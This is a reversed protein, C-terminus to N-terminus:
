SNIRGYIYGTSQSKSQQSLLSSYVCNNMVGHSPSTINGILSLVGGVIETISKHDLYVFIYYKRSM